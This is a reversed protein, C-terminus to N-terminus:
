AAKRNVRSDALETLKKDTAKEEQLTEDLVRAWDEHGLQKALSILTGYRTIEYHEVAQASSLMAADAVEADGCDGIIEKAESLIGDMAACDSGKAEQGQMEFVRELRRVQNQTEKLHQEFASRLQPDSAKEIMTPLNKTIQQEAYYIDQLTHEFLDDITKIPKTFLGM